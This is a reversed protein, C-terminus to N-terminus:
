PSPCGASITIKTEAVGLTADPIIWAGAGGYYRGFEVIQSPPREGLMLTDSLGDAIDTLRLQLNTAIVGERYRSSIGSVGVYSTQGYPRRMWPVPTRISDSACPFIPINDSVIDPYLYPLPNGEYSQVIIRWRSDDGLFPLIRATWNLTPYPDNKLIPIHLPPNNPTSSGPPLVHNTDHYNHLAIAIQRLHDVCTLRASASRVQQIASCLLGVLVGVIAIVVIFELLTMGIRPRRMISTRFSSLSNPM